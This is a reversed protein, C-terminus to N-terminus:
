DQTSGSRRAAKWKGGVYLLYSLHVLWTLAYAAILHHHGMMSDIKPDYPFILAVGPISM